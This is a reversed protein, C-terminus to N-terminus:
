SQTNWDFTVGLLGPDKNLIAQYVDAARSPSELHTLLPKLNLAGRAILQLTAEMRPRTWGSVFHTTLEQQQLLAMDAWTTGPTFGSYVIQGAGHELLPLYQHQAEVTQVTDLIARIPAGGTIERVQHATADSARIAYDASHREALQLRLPRRGVMIVRAGRARLAQAGFQGILGDGYVVCWANPEIQARMAANYGVQAVVAASADVRDAGAPIRYVETFPTNAVAAHAGWHPLVAGSWRGVTAMIAEGPALGEVNEGLREVVGVRQYGPVCPFPTPAWTFQNKLVWGETGASVTSYLTRIQVEGPAPPPMVVDGFAAHEASTFTVARISRGEM